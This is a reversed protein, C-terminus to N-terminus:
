KEVAPLASLRIGNKAPSKTADAVASQVTGVDIGLLQQQEGSRRRLNSAGNAEKRNVLDLSHRRWGHEAAVRRILRKECDGVAQGLETGLTVDVAGERLAKVVSSLVHAAPNAFEEHDRRGRAVDHQDGARKSRTALCRVAVNQGVQPQVVLTKTRQHGIRTHYENIVSKAAGACRHVHLQAHRDLRVVGSSVGVVVRGHRVVPPDDLGDVLAEVRKLQELLRLVQPAANNADFALHHTGREDQIPKPTRNSTASVQDVMVICMMKRLCFLAGFVSRQFVDRQRWGLATLQIKARQFLDVVCFGFDDGLNGRNGLLQNKVDSSFVGQFINNRDDVIADVCNTHLFNTLFVQLHHQHRKNESRDM